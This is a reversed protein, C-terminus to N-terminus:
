PWAALMSVDGTRRDDMLDLYVQEVKRMRSEFSLDTEVRRRAAAARHTAAARDAVVRRIADTLRGRDGPPVILGDIGDRAIEATGGVDTAVLPTSLAMAELVANPTGEYASSQVFVDFAHHLDAVDTRHGLLLCKGALGLSRALAALADRESGDGAIVLRLRPEETLLDRFAALLVDFRKQPELRGVAGIVM